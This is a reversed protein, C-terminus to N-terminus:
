VFIENAMLQLQSVLPFAIANDRILLAGLRIKRRRNDMTVLTHINKVLLTPM